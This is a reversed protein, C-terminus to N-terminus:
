PKVLTGYMPLAVLGYRGTKTVLSGAGSIIGSAAGAGAGAGAGTRAPLGDTSPHAALLTNVCTTLM